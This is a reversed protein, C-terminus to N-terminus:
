PLPLGTFPDVARPKPPPPAERTVSTPRPGASVRPLSTTTGAPSVLPASSSTAPPAGAQAGSPEPTAPSVLTAASPADSPPAVASASAATGSSPEAQRAGLYFGLGGIAMVLTVLPAWRRASWRGSPASGMGTTVARFARSGTAESPRDAGPLSPGPARPLAGPTAGAVADLTVDDPGRGVVTVDESRVRLWPDPPEGKAIAALAAAMDMASDFRQSVDRSLAREFFRDLDAPLDPRVETPRPIPRSVVALMVVTMAEGEFPRQGTLARFLVVGLSWLDSRHDVKEGHAQEPSMHHPSGLVVGSGTREEVLERPASSPDKVLQTRTERAIGFDLLKVTEDNGERAMFINSPKLDRHVIGAEHAVRLAKAIQTTVVSLEPLPIRGVRNLREGLDEGELAEMVMFPTEDEIGYDQVKVIHPSKLQASAKAEREFRSLATPTDTLLPSMLKVAVEADLTVHKALWVAGMGGGALRRLLRYKGGIVADPVPRFVM